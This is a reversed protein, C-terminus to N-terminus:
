MPTTPLAARMHLVDGLAIRPSGSVYSKSVGPSALLSAENWPACQKLFSPAPRLGTANDPDQKSDSKSWAKLAGADDLNYWPPRERANGIAALNHHPVADEKRPHAYVAALTPVNRDSRTRVEIAMCCNEGAARYGDTAVALDRAIHEDHIGVLMWQGFASTYEPRDRDAVVDPNSRPRHNEASHRQTRATHDPNTRHDGAVHWGVRHGHTLVRM